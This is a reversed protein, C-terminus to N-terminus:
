AALHLSAGVQGFMNLTVCLDSIMNPANLCCSMKLGCIPWPRPPPLCQSSLHPAPINHLRFILGPLMKLKQRKLPRTTRFPTNAWQPLFICTSWTFLYMVGMMAFTRKRRLATAKAAADEAPLDSRGLASLLSPHVQLSYEGQTSIPHPPSLLTFFFLTHEFLQRLCLSYAPILLLCLRPSLSLSPHASFRLCRLAAITHHFFSEQLFRKKERRRREKKQM